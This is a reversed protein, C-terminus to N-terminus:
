EGLRAVRMCRMREKAAGSHNNMGGFFARTANRLEKEEPGESDSSPLSSM